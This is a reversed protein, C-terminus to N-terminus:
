TDHRSKAYSRRHRWLGIAVAVFMLGSVPALVFSLWLLGNLLTDFVAM